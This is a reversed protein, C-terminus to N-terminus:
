PDIRDITIAGAGGHGGNGGAASIVGTNTLSGAQLVIIRGGGSGGGNTGGGTGGASGESRISGSPGIVLNGKVGLVLLGGTGNSGPGGGASGGGGGPNGAGGGAYDEGKGGQGGYAQGSGGNRGNSAAGGGAGGSYCTGQAGAGSTGGSWVSGSGGGGTGNASTGGAYGPAAAQYTNDWRGAGGAGGERAITYIAGNGAIGLQQSEAARWAGGVGGLGTGGLDSAALTENSGFKFRALRIGTAPISDALTPNANAGRATMSLTGNITCDGNVYIVLGRCRNSTTVTHGANITLNTFQKVVVDGDQVSGFNINGTTTLAGDSGNGWFNMEPVDRGMRYFASGPPPNSDVFAVVGHSTAVTTGITTWYNLDTSRQVMYTRGPIGQSSILATGNGPMTIQPPNVGVGGSTPNPAVGVTVTGSVTAGYPDAITVSFTDNGSFAAPPTYLIAGSQLVATGGQTSSPGAATVSLTDGDADSAKSLLKSLPISAATQWPTVVSYGAFTPATNGTGTLTLTFPNEDPDDSAISLTATKAGSTAAFRVTFTASGGAALTSPPPTPLSFSSAGTGTISPTIGALETGGTNRLTCTIDQNQGPAIMGFALTGTGNSVTTGTPAELAVDPPGFTLTQEIIGSSGNYQGGTTRGRARIQGAPPLSLGTLRWGGTVRTPTGLSVWSAGNWNEFIVQGVEPTSGGRLWDIQNDGVISLSSTAATDNTIRAINSRPIGGVASFGGGLLIRGDLQSALSNVVNNANPDFSSDLTGDANLRAINNRGVLGVSIFPGGIIIKGDAQLAITSLGGSLNPNFSSDLTGNTNLRAIRNRAVGGVVVFGGGIVIKGDAQVAITGVGGDANPNFSSDLTGDANVRAIYNRTVGGVTTFGGGILIKGDVQVALSYVWSNANPNFSSDLTGDVNLRAIRNRVVGGVTTFDGGILIKGDAQLVVSNISDNANPNFSSDLSGNANLRAIRNRTVGGVTTFFGGMLIKGDAQVALSNVVHNADPSFSGDLTGDANLRAIRNRTVGSMATFAGGILLKSDAQVALSYVRNNANPDFGDPTQAHLLGPSLFTFFLLLLLRLTKM